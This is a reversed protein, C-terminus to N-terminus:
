FQEFQQHRDSHAAVHRGSVLLSRDSLKAVFADIGRERSSMFM